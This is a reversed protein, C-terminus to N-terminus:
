VASCTLAKSSFENILSPSSRCAIIFAALCDTSINFLSNEVESNKIRHPGPLLPPSPYKMPMPRLSSFFDTLNISTSLWAFFDGSHSCANSAAFSESKM